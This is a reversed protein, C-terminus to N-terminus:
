AAVEHNGAVIDAVAQTSAGGMQRRELEPQSAIQLDTAIQVSLDLSITPGVEVAYERSLGGLMIADYVKPGTGVNPRRSMSAGGHDAAHLSQFAEAERLRETGCS